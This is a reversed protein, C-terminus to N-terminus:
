KDDGIIKDPNNALATEIEEPAIDYKEAMKKAASIERYIDELDRGRSRAIEQPSRILAGMEDIRAKTERLPDISEMGPPQWEAALYQRRHSFYDPIDLVGSLVAWDMEPQQTEKGFHRILAAQKTLLQFAYDNRCVRMTSYNLGSYDGSLLEYPVDTSIALMTLILKVFPPFNTGPRPNTAITIDEGPRLYETIANEMEDIKQNDDNTTMGAQRSYIDPTKIFALYKAAMKATDLETTMYDSLDHALLVGSTFDSIGRLQGPRLTKFKHVVNEAKIRQTKGWSDPDTFHYAVVEGTKKNFEIGQNIENLKSSPNAGIETLWEPEYLQLAFPLYRRKDNSIKKVMLFEGCEIIQRQALHMMEYYHLKRSFDAEDAWWSFSDEIKTILDNNLDGAPTKVKSQFIIGEGVVYNGIINVARAFYPFDRVLQRIRARVNASSNGIIDNVNSDVPSWSGTLRGTKAAAYQSSRKDLISLQDRCIKRDLAKRPSFLGIAADLTKSIGNYVTM